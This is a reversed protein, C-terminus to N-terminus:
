GNTLEEIQQFKKLQEQNINLTTAMEHFKWFEPYEEKIYKAQKVALTIENKTLYTM